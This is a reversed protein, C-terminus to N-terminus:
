ALSEGASGMSLSAHLVGKERRMRDTLSQIERGAGRVMIMEACHDHDLHVHTTALVHGEFHHQLHTLRGSLGRAHHDYMLSITGLQETNGSWEERVLRDRIMDRVFESRNTYSSKTVLEELRQFLPKELSLSLRVLDPM